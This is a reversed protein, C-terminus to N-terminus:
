FRLRPVSSVKPETQFKGQHCSGSPLVVVRVQWCSKSQVASENFITSKGLLNAFSGPVVAVSEQSDWGSIATAPAYNGPAQDLPLIFEQSPEEQLVTGPFHLQIEDNSQDTDIQM